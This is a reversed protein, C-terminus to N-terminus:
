TLLSWSFPSPVDETASGSYINRVLMAAVDCIVTDELVMGVTPGDLVAWVSVHKSLTYLPKIGASWIVSASHCLYPRTHSLPLKWYHLGPGVHTQQGGVLQIVVRIEMESDLQLTIKPM